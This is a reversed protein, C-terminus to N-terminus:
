GGATGRASQVYEQPYSPAVTNHRSGVRQGWGPNPESDSLTSALKAVYIYPAM